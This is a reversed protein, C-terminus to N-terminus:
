VESVLAFVCSERSVEKAARAVETDNPALGGQLVSGRDAAPRRDFEGGSTAGPLAPPPKDREPEETAM